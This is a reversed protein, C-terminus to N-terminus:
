TLDCNKITDFAVGYVRQMQPNTEKGRWYAGSVRMLKFVGAKGTSEVHPGRCLDTFNGNTYFSVNKVKSDGTATLGLEEADLEKAVTTGARKLDHLLEQKYPQKNDKAM